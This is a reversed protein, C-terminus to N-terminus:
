GFVNSGGLAEDPALRAGGVLYTPEAYRDDWQQAWAPFALEVARFVLLLLGEM